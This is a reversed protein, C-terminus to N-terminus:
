LGMLPLLQTEASDSATNLATTGQPVCAASVTPLLAKELSSSLLSPVSLSASAEMVGVSGRANPRHM